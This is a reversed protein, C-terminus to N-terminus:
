PRYLVEDDSTGREPLAHMSHNSGFVQPDVQCLAKTSGADFTNSGDPTRVPAEILQKGFLLIGIDNLSMNSWDM